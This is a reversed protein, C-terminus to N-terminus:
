LTTSLLLPERLYLVHNQLVFSLTKNLHVRQTGNSGYYPLCESKGVLFDNISTFKINAPNLLYAYLVHECRFM